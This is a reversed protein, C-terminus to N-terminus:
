ARASACSAAAAARLRAHTPSDRPISSRSATSTSIAARAARQRIERENGLLIPQAIREDLRDACARLIKHQEGEPFVIREPRARRASSSAACSRTRAGGLRRELRERYEDIDVHDRAVGTEM